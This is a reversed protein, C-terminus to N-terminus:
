RPEGERILEDAAAQDAALGRNIIAEVAQRWTPFVTALLYAQQAPTLESLKM